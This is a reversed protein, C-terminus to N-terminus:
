DENIKLHLAHFQHYETDSPHYIKCFGYSSNECGLIMNNVQRIHQVPCRSTLSFVQSRNESNRYNSWEFVISWQEVSRISLKRLFIFLFSPKKLEEDQTRKVARPIQCSCNLNVKLVRTEWKMLTFKYSCRPTVLVIEFPHRILFRQINTPKNQHVGIDLGTMIVGLNHYYCSYLFHNKLERKWVCLPKCSSVIGGFPWLGFNLISM